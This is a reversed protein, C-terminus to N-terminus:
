ITSTSGLEYPIRELLHDGYRRQRCQTHCDNRRLARLSIEEIEMHHQGCTHSKSGHKIVLTSYPFTWKPFIFLHQDMSLIVPAHLRKQRQDQIRKYLDAENSLAMSDSTRALLATAFICGCHLPPSRMLTKFEQDTLGLHHHTLNAIYQQACKLTTFSYGHEGTFLRDPETFKSIFTLNTYLRMPRANLLAFILQPLLNDADIHRENEPSEFSTFTKCCKLISCLKDYPTIEQDIKNLEQIALANHKWFRNDATLKLMEPKVWHFVNFQRQLQLDSNECESYILSFLSGYMIRFVCDEVSNFLTEADLPTFEPFSECIWAKINKYFRNFESALSDVNCAVNVINIYEYASEIFQRILSYFEPKISAIHKFRHRTLFRIVNLEVESNHISFPKSEQFPSRQYSSLLANNKLKQLIKRRIGVREIINNDNTAAILSKDTETIFQKERKAWCISCFGNWDSNGYYGCDNKCLVPQEDTM